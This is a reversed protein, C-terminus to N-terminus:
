KLWFNFMKPFKAYKNQSLSCVEKAKLVTTKILPGIEHLKWKKKRSVITCWGDEDVVVNSKSNHSSSREVEEDIDMSDFNQEVIQRDDEVVDATDSDTDTAQRCM